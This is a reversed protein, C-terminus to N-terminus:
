RTMELAEDLSIAKTESGSRLIVDVSNGEGTEPQWDVLAGKRNFLYCSRGYPVDFPGSLEGTWAIYETGHSQLLVLRKPPPVARAFESLTKVEPRPALCNRERRVEFAYAPVAALLLTLLITEARHSRRRDRLTLNLVIRLPIAFAVATIVAALLGAFVFGSVVLYTDVGGRWEKFLLRAFILAYIVLWAVFTALLYRRDAPRMANMLTAM